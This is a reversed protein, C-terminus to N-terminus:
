RTADPPEAPHAEEGVEGALHHVRQQRQEQRPHKTRAGHREADDFADGFRRVANELNDGAAHRVPPVPALREDHEAVREGRGDPREHRHGAPPDLHEAQPEDIPESLADAARGPVRHEGSERAARVPAAHEAKVASHIVRSRDRARNGGREEEEEIRALVRVSKASVTMGPIM